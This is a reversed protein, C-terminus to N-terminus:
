RNSLEELLSTDDNMHMLTNGDEINSGGSIFENELGFGFDFEDDNSIDMVTGCRDYVDFKDVNLGENEYNIPTLESSPKQRYSSIVTSTSTMQDQHFDHPIGSLEMHNNDFNSMEIATIKPVNQECTTIKTKTESKTKNRSLATALLLEMKRRVNDETQISVLREEEKRRQEELLSKPLQARAAKRVERRRRAEDSNKTALSEACDISSSSISSYTTVPCSSDFLAFDEDVPHHSQILTSCQPLIGEHLEFRKNEVSKTKSLKPTIGFRASLSRARENERSNLRELRRQNKLKRKKEILISSPTPILSPLKVPSPNKILSLYRTQNQKEEKETTENNQNNNCTNSGEIVGGIRQCFRRLELSHSLQQNVVESQSTQTSAFPVNVIYRHHQIATNNQVYQTDLGFNEDSLLKHSKQVFLLPHYKPLFHIVLASSTNPNLDVLKRCKDMPAQAVLSSADSSTSAKQQSKHLDKLFTGVSTESTFNFSSASSRPINDGSSIRLLQSSSHPTIDLRMEPKRKNNRRGTPLLKPYLYHYKKPLLHLNPLPIIGKAMQELSRRIWFVELPLINMPFYCQRTEQKPCTWLIREYQQGSEEFYGLFWPVLQSECLPCTHAASMLEDEENVGGRLNAFLARTIDDLSHHMFASKRSNKQQDQTCM